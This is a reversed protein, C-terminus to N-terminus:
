SLGSCILLWLVLYLEITQYASSETSQFIEIKKGTTTWKSPTDNKSSAELLKKIWAMLLDLGIRKTVGFIEVHIMYRSTILMVIGTFSIRFKKQVNPSYRWKYRRSFFFVLSQGNEHSGLM